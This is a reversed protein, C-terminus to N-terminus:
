RFEYKFDLLDKVAQTAASNADATDGGRGMYIATLKKAATEYDVRVQDARSGAVLTDFFPKLATTVAPNSGKKAADDRTALLPPEKVNQANILAVGAAPTVGNAVVRLAPDLHKSIESYVKPWADGWLGAQANIEALVIGAGGPQGEREPLAQPA